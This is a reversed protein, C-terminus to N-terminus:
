NTFDISLGLQFKAPNLPYHPVSFYDPKGIIGTNFHSYMVYFHTKGLKMNAYANMFPFGGVRSSPDSYFSMTAPQYGLALHKSYYDFDVGVQIDLVKAIKFLCYLNSYITLKPVPIVEHNTSKQLYVTNDLHLARWAFNQQLMLTIIQVSGGNQVPLCDPGFYVYDNINEVEARIKSMTRPFSVEGGFMVRKIKNFDNNWIFHNSIYQELFFAPKSNALRGFGTINLSDKFMPIKTTVNGDVKFDGAKRGTLGLEATAEYKIISGQQKTIQAGITIDAYKKRATPLEGEYTSLGEPREDFPLYLMSDPTQHYSRLDISAYASLGFKAYKNFGELLSVGLTNKFSSYTTFDDTEGMLLYRDAWFERDQSSHKNTFKHKGERWNMTWIFATVPVYVDIVTTDDVEVEKWFGAKYKANIYIDSGRTRNQAQTLNTPIAKTSVTNNGGQIEAPNTIYLDDEIGGNERNTLNYHTQYVQVEFKDGIYSGNFGWTFNKVAQNDYMGKSYLYNAIAGIQLRKNVNGSFVAKLRDQGTTSSGGFNYSLLTMPQRTNYFKIKDLTPIWPRLGDAFFFDTTEHRESFILNIGPDGLNGTTAWAPSVLSPVSLMSYNLFTTDIGAPERLGLPQLLQWAYPKAVPQKEEAVLSLCSMLAILLLFAKNQKM